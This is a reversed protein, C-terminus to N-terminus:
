RLESVLVGGLCGGCVWGDVWGVAFFFRVEEGGRSPVLNATRKIVDYFCEAGALGVGFRPTLPPGLRSM